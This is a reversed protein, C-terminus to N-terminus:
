STLFCSSDLLLSGSILTRRINRCLKAWAGSQSVFKVPLEVCETKPLPFQLLHSSISNLGFVRGSANPFFSIQFMLQLVTTQHFLM